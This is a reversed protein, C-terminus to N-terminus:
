IIAIEESLINEELEKRIGAYELLDVKGKVKEELLLKLGVFGLLGIGKKTEVLIDIDSDKKQEGRAFSGFIGAKTVKHEKLVPVIKRSLKKIEDSIKTM